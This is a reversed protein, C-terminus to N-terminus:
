IDPCHREEKPDIADENRLAQGYRLRIVFEIKVDNWRLASFRHRNSCKSIMQRSPSPSKRLFVMPRAHSRFPNLKSHNTSANCHLPPWSVTWRCGCALFRASCGPLNGSSRLLFFAPYYRAARRGPPRAYPLVRRRIEAWPEMDTFVRTGQQM